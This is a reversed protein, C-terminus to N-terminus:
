SGNESHGDDAVNGENSTPAYGIQTTARFAYYCSRRGHRGLREQGVCSGGSESYTEGARIAHALFSGVDFGGGSCHPNPCSSYQGPPRDLSFSYSETKGFGLPLANVEVSLSTVQPYLAKFTTLGFLSGGKELIQQANPNQKM